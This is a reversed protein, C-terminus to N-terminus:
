LPAERALIQATLTAAVKLDGDWAGDLLTGGSLAFETWDTVLGARVPNAAVYRAVDNVDEDTQLIHDHYGKQWLYAGTERKFEFATKQKFRQMFKSLSSLESGQVLLHVHDPMFVYALVVMSEHGAAATMDEACKRALGEDVFWQVRNATAATVLYVNPGVYNDPELRNPKRRWATAPRVTEPSRFTAAVTNSGTM